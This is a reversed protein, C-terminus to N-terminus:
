ESCSADTLAVDLGLLEINAFGNFENVLVQAALDFPKDEQKTLAAYLEPRNFFIVPKVMGNAFIMAKVHKDKFIEPAQALIVSKLYFNPVPNGNGFPELRDLDDLLRKNLDPLQLEADIDIAPHLQELELTESILLELREKLLPLKEVPLSLGAAQRHGGFTQLIDANKSLAAFLDFEPISRCSGKALGDSNVYFVFSPRGYNNTLRGSVLGIVGM